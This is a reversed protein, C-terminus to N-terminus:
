VQRQFTIRMEPIDKEERVVEFSTHELILCVQGASDFYTRVVDAKPIEELVAMRGAQRHHMESFLMPLVAPTITLRQVRRGEGLDILPRLAPEAPPAAEKTEVPASTTTSPDAKKKAM